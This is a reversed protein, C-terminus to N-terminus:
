KSTDEVESSESFEPDKLNKNWEHVACVDDLLFFNYMAYKRYRDLLIESIVNQRSTWECGEIIKVLSDDSDDTTLEMCWYGSLAALLYLTVQPLM